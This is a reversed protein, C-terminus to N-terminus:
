VCCVAGIICCARPCGALRLRRARRGGGMERGVVRVACRFLREAEPMHREGVLGEFTDWRTANSIVARARFVRGDALRVGTARRRREGGGGGGGSSSAAAPEEEETIIEKVNAKYIVRGGRAAIGAAMEEGIRGVGGLPYNIGGFHRDCFVMGANIMPTLDASVTSWIFCEADIFRLLEPDKIHRRAVDGTNTILFSALTLCSIPDRFFEGM